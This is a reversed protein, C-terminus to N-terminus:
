EILEGGRKQKTQLNNFDREISTIFYKIGNVMINKGCELNHISASSGISNVAFDNLSPVTLTAEQLLNDDDNGAYRNSFYKLRDSINDWSSYTGNNDYGLRGIPAWFDTPRYTDYGDSTETTTAIYGDVKMFM